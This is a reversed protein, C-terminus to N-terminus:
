HYCSAPIFNVSSGLNLILLLFADSSLLVCAHHLLCRLCSVWLPVLRQPTYIVTAGNRLAILSLFQSSAFFGVTDFVSYATSFLSCPWGCRFCRFCALPPSPTSQVLLLALTRPHLQHLAVHSACFLLYLVPRHRFTIFRRFPLLRLYLDLRTSLRPSPREVLFRLRFPRIICITAFAHELLVPSDLFRPLPPFTMFLARRPAHPPQHSFQFGLHSFLM